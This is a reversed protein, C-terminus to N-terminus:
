IIGDIKVEYRKAKLLDILKKCKSFDIDQMILRKLKPFQIENIKELAM